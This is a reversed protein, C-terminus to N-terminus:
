HPQPHTHLVDALTQAAGDFEGGSGGDIIRVVAEETRDLATVIMEKDAGHWRKQEETTRAYIIEKRKRYVIRNNPESRERLRHANKAVIHRAKDSWDGSTYGGFCSVLRLIQTLTFLACGELADIATGYADELRTEGMGIMKLRGAFPPPQGFPDFVDLPAAPTALLARHLAGINEPVAMWARIEAREAPTMKRGCTLVEVRRDEQPLKVVDRHNTAIIPSMASPQAFAHQGKAEYRRRQTPSPDIVNKLADYHLRRQTQQHGDEAIAENVVAFLADALRANFRAAASTGTLGGFTCPLVYDKGFLLELIDFLTGRGTGFEEAVMILGIMPVWPRRTKHALWHWFWTREEDDPFLRAFFAEFVAINGGETPHVPPRYRNFIHYRDENFTPRPRDSRTQVADIQARQSHMMWADVVSMTKIGGRPGISVLAYPQMLGRLSPISSIEGDVLSIVGGKGMFAGKYYAYNTLMWDIVTAFVAERAAQRTEDEEEPKFKGFDPQLPCPAGYLPNRILLHDSLSALFERDAQSIAAGDFIKEDM